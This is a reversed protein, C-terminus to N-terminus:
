GRCCMPPLPLASPTAILIPFASMPFCPPACVMAGHPRLTGSCPPYRPRPTQIATFSRADLKRFSVGRRSAFSLLDCVGCVVEWLAVQRGCALALDQVISAELSLTASVTSMAEPNTGRVVEQIEQDPDPRLQLQGGFAAATGGLLEWSGDSRQRSPALMPLNTIPVEIVPV